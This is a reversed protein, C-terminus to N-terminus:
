ADAFRTAPFGGVPTECRFISGADPERAQAAPDPAATTIFLTRLDEGGFTCSTVRSVPLEIRALREGTRGHLRWVCSGEWLAVWLHGEVDITLGDPKGEGEGFTALPRRNAIAGTALDFDFQDVRRTPTDVYYLRTNDPSWGLGNSITVGDLMQEFIGRADVRYLAHRGQTSDLAMTGVWLRGAADCKADNFRSAAPSATALASFLIFRADAPQFWGLDHQRVALLRGRRTPLVASLFDGLKWAADSSGRPELRHLEGRPIDVFWLAGEHWVPGEALQAKARRFVTATYTKM